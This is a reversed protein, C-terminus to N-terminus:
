EIKYNKKYEVLKWYWPDDYVIKLSNGEKLYNEIIKGKENNFQMIIIVRKFNNDNKHPTEILKIIHGMKLLKLKLLIDGKKEEKKMRPICLISNKSSM